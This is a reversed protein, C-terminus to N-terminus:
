HGFTICRDAKLLGDAYQGLGSLEFGPALNASSGHRKGEGPDFVGRRKAASVCVVLDLKERQELESWLTSLDREDQPPRQNSAGNYIGDHYFFVRYVSHGTALASCVFRYASWASQGQQPAGYVVVFFQM